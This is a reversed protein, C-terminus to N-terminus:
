PPLTLDGKRAEFLRLSGRGLQEVTAMAEGFPVELRKVRFSEVTTKLLSLFQSVRDKM